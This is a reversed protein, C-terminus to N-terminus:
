SADESSVLSVFAAFASADHYEELRLIKDDGYSVIQRNAASHMRGTKPQRMYFVATAHGRDNVLRFTEPASLCDM